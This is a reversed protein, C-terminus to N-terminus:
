LCTKSILLWASGIAIALVIAVVNRGFLVFGLAAFCVLIIFGRLIRAHRDRFTVYLRRPITKNTTHM